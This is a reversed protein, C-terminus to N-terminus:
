RKTKQFLVFIHLNPGCHLAVAHFWARQSFFSVIRSRFKLWLSIYLLLSCIVAPLWFFGVFDYLFHIRFCLLNLKKGSKYIRIPCSYSQFCLRFRICFKLFFTYMKVQKEGTVCFFLNSLFNAYWLLGNMIGNFPKGITGLHYFDIILWWCWKLSCHYSINPSNWWSYWRSFRDLDSIEM